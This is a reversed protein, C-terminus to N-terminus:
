ISDNNFKSKIIKRNTNYQQNSKNAMGNFRKFYKLIKHTEPPLTSLFVVYRM